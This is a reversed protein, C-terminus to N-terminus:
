IRANVAKKTPSIPKSLVSLDILKRDSTQGVTEITEVEFEEIAALMAEEDLTEIEQYHEFEDEVMAALEEDSPNVPDLEDDDNDFRASKSEESSHPALEVVSPTLNQSLSGIHLYSDEDGEIANDQETDLTEIEDEDDDLEIEDEDETEYQNVADLATFFDTIFTKTEDAGLEQDDSPISVKSFDIALTDLDIGKKVDMLVLDRRRDQVRAEHRDLNLTPISVALEGSGWAAELQAKSPLAEGLRELSPSVWKLRDIFVPDSYYHIKECHIPKTNELNIIQEKQDMAKLEQPLMLARKQDSESESRSGGGKFGLQRSKGKAKFTYYGLAESYENADQERPTFFIQCAHNTMLTRASERGYGNPADAQLQGPSQIISVMRLGYGAMYSNSKDVIPIRGPATFEDNLMLCTYKLEPTSYLLRNTNLNVLQTYFMNLILRAEQLKNVPIGLYISMKKKRVDRLDFDNASTAADIIPSAWITLPVNFSSMISSLTKDSNSTFRNLADVCEDSLPPLGVGDWEGIPESKRLTEVEAGVDRLSREISEISEKPVNLVVYMPALGSLEEAEERDISAASMIAAIVKEPDSGVDKLLIDGVERYNREKIINHLHEAIPKGKGSSQRLLEGITRPLSPTECLYLCLGLFLNRAADDFFADGGGGPYLSYGIALIDTPRLRPNDSIYGLPNYRHTKGELPNGEGDETVSFPNFLFIEQGCKARFKSTILFNELKVDLVVVSEPWNLLNPIVIAVGKGSRTPASLLVFQMGPFM